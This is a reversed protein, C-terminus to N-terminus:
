NDPWTAGEPATAEPAKNKSGPPRGRRPRPPVVADPMVAASTTELTPERYGMHALDATISRALNRDGIAMARERAKVLGATKTAWRERTDM